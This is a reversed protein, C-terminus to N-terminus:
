TSAIRSFEIVKQGLTAVPGNDSVSGLADAILAQLEALEKRAADPATVKEIDKTSQEIRVIDHADFADMLAAQIEIISDVATM